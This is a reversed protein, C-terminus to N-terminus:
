LFEWRTPSGSFDHQDLGFAWSPSVRVTASSVPDITGLDYSTGYKGNVLDIVHQLRDADTVITGVGSVVVPNEPDQTTVVCRPNSELNRVKRSARSSSFWVGDDWVGWIPMAHPFGQRSTTVIWYNRSAELRDKAWSWPLLGMGENPGLIGYGPMYPRKRTPEQVVRKYSILRKNDVPVCRRRRAYM